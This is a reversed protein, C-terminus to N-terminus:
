DSPLFTIGDGTTAGPLGFLHSRSYAGGGPIPAPFILNDPAIVPLGRLTRFQNGDLM